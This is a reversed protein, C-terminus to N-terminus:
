RVREKEREREREKERERERENEGEREREREDYFSPICWYPCEPGVCMDLMKEHLYGSIGTSIGTCVTTHM